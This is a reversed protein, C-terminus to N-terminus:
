TEPENKRQDPRVWGKINRQRGRGVALEGSKVTTTVTSGAAIFAGSGIELPAVLTSNTGVFVDDGIHTPHKDIGDYNCTITGAGVNCGEGLSADGLYALHSAKSGRGLVSKKTEVFNGIKVAEELCTGHRLHAFPGLVCNAAVQAGEIVTHPEVRVGDGLASDRVVVGPGLHVNRGLTVEGELVVNVDLFCDQGAEVAGRVEVRAPDAVSVGQAMLAALARRQFIRETAALQGRDNIGMVEEPAEAKLGHVPLGDAVALAVVDTLYFEGQANAPEIRSLYDSLRPQSLAMIGSNIECIARQAEDADRYEVIEQVAGDVGRQIRGLEAPDSLDATILALDGGAAAQICTSLTAPTVLPVDGYLVLVLADEAVAPLAQQVAHGTGMQASQDVWHVDVDLAQRVQDAQHGVVVHIASPGLAAATNVVHQLLPKGALPHLVKPLSSNM